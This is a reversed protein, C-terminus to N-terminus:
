PKKSGDQHKEGEAAVADAAQGIAEDRAIELTEDTKAADVEPAAAAEAKAAEDGAKASSQVAEDGGKAASQGAEDASKIAARFIDDCGALTLAALSAFLLRRM